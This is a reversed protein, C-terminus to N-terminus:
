NNPTPSPQSQEQPMKMGPMQDMQNQQPTPPPQLQPMQMGPMNQMQHGQQDGSDPSSQDWQQEKAAQALIQRSKKTLSDVSLANRLPWVTAEPASPSAPNDATLPPPPATACGALLSLVILLISYRNMKKDYHSNFNRSTNAKSFQASLV